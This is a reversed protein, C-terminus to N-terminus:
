IHAHTYYVVNNFLTCHYFYKYATVLTVLDGNLFYIYYVTGYRQFILSRQTIRLQMQGFINQVRVVLDAIDLAYTNFISRLYYVVFHNGPNDFVEHM